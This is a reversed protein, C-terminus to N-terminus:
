VVLDRIKGFVKDAFLEVIYPDFQKGAQNRIEDLAEEPSLAQHSPGSTTM